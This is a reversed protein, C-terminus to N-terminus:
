PAQRCTDILEQKVTRPDRIVRFFQDLYEKTQKVYKPELEPLSDYVAYLAAKKEQFTSLIAVWEAATRCPRRYLRERVSRIPLRYDPFSYRTWVIGSWDFDYAMPWVVGTEQHQFLVINHLAVLSWDTGGILYEFTSVLAGLESDVNDWVAGKTELVTAHNRAAARKENEIFFANRALSDQKGTPDIYTARVLRARLNVPTPRSRSASAM